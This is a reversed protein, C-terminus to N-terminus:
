GLEMPLQGTAFVGFEILKFDEFKQSLSSEWEKINSQQRMASIPEDWNFLYVTSKWSDHVLKTVPIEKNLLQAVAQYAHVGSENHEDFSWDTSRKMPITTYILDEDNTQIAFQTFWSKQDNSDWKKSADLRSHLSNNILELFTLGTIEIEANVWNYITLDTPDDVRLMWFDLGANDGIMIYNELGKAQQLEDNYELFSHKNTFLGAVLDQQHGFHKLFDRYYDPFAKGTKIELDEIQAESLGWYFVKDM